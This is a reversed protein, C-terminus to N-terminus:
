PLVLQSRVYMDRIPEPLPSFDIPEKLAWLRWYAETRDMMRRATKPLRTMFIWWRKALIEVRWGCPTAPWAEPRSTCHFALRPIWRARRSPIAPFIGAEADRWTGEADGRKTGTTFHEVGYRLPDEGAVLFWRQDKYHVM